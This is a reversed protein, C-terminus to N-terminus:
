AGAAHELPTEVGSGPVIKCWRDRTAAISDFVADFQQSVDALLSMAIDIQTSIEEYFRESKYTQPDNWSGDIIGNVQNVMYQALKFRHQTVFVDDSIFDFDLALNKKDMQGEM